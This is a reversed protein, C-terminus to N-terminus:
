SLALLAPSINEFFEEADRWLQLIKKNKKNNNNRGNGSIEGYEKDV